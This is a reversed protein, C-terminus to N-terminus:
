LYLTMTLANYRSFMGDVDSIMIINVTIVENLHQKGPKELPISSSGGRGKWETRQLLSDSHLAWVSSTSFLEGGGGGQPAVVWM